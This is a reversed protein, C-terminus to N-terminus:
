ETATQPQKLQIGSRPVARRVPLFMVLSILFPFGTRGVNYQLQHVSLTSQLLSFGAAMTLVWAPCGTDPESCHRGQSGLLMRGVLMPKVHPKNVPLLPIAATYNPSVGVSLYSGVASDLQRCM